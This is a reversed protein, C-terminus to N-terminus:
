IYLVLKKKDLMVGEIEDGNKMNNEKVINDSLILALEGHYKIIKVKYCKGM